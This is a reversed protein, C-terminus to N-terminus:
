WAASQREPDAGRLDAPNQRRHGRGEGAEGLDLSPRAADDQGPGSRELRDGARQGRLAEMAPAIFREIHPGIRISRHKRHEIAAGQRAEADARDPHM